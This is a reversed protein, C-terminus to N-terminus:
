FIIEIKLHQPSHNVPKTFHAIHIVRRKILNNTVVCMYKYLLQAVHEAFVMRQGLAPKHDTWGQLRHALM